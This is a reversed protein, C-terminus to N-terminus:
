KNGYALTSTYNQIVKKKYTNYPSSKEGTKKHIFLGISCNSNELNGNEFLMYGSQLTLFQEEYRRSEFLGILAIAGM